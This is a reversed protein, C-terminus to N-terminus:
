VSGHALLRFLLYSNGTNVSHFRLEASLGTRHGLYNRWRAYDGGSRCLGCYRNMHSVIITVGRDRNLVRLTDMIAHSTRTDLNGTAEDALLVIPDNVLARAIAVPQRSARSSIQHTRKTTPWRFWPWCMPPKASVSPLPNHGQPRISFRCLSNGVASTRPLLNFSQFVFGLKESRLQALQQESLEAIDM